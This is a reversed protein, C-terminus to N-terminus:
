TFLKDISVYCGMLGVGTMIIGLFLVLYFKIFLLVKEIINNIIPIIVDLQNNFYYYSIIIVVIPLVFIFNYLILTVITFFWNFNNVHMTTIAGLYPLGTSVEIGTIVMGLKFAGFLNNQSFDRVKTVISKKRNKIALYIFLIGFFVESVFISLIFRPNMDVITKDVFAEPTTKTFDFFSIIPQGYHDLILCAIIGIVMSSAFIGLVYLISKLVKQSECSLIVFTMAIASPNISDIFAVTILAILISYSM